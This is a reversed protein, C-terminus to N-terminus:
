QFLLTIVQTCFYSFNESVLVSGTMCVTVRQLYLFLLGSGGPCRWELEELLLARPRGSVLCFVKFGAARRLLLTAVEPRLLM